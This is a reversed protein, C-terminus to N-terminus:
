SFQGRCLSSLHQHNIPVIQMMHGLHKVRWFIGLPKKQIVLYTNTSTGGLSNTSCNPNPKVEPHPRHKLFDCSSYKLACQLVRLTVLQISTKFKLIRWGRQTKSKPKVHLETPKYSAERKQKPQCM